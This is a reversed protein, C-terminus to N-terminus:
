RYITRKFFLWGGSSCNLGLNAFLESTTSMKYSASLIRVGGWSIAFTLLYYTLVSHQRILTMITMM